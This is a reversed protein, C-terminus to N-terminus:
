DSIEEEMKRLAEPYFESLGSESLKYRLTKIGAKDLTNIDFEKIIIELEDEAWLPMIVPVGLIDRLIDNHNGTINGGELKVSSSLRSIGLSNKHDSIDDYCLAYINSDRVSNVIFPSHTAAIFQVNPFADILKPFLTRQMEPHLHNEPEDFIVTFNIAQTSYTFIQWAIDIISSVGGSAEDIVFDGTACELIVDPMRISIKKFGLNKPLVKSLVDSFDNFYNKLEINGQVHGNGEGYVAMLILAEKLRLLPNGGSTQSNKFINFYQQFSQAIKNPDSPINNIHNYHPPPRHSPIYLGDLSRKGPLQLAYNVHVTDPVLIETAGGESYKVVGISNKKENSVVNMLTAFLDKIHGNFYSKSGDKDLVPTAVLNFNWDYHSALIKLLTSKGSGNTGTLITLKEHFDIQVNNFQRWGKLTLSKFSM